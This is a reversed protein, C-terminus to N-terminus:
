HTFQGELQHITQDLPNIQQDLSHHILQDIAIITMPVQRDMQEKNLVTAVKLQYLNESGPGEKEEERELRELVQIQYMATVMATM